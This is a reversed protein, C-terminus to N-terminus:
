DQHRHPPKDEEDDVGVETKVEHQSEAATETEVAKLKEIEAESILVPSSDESQSELDLTPVEEIEVEGALVPPEEFHAETEIAHGEEIEADAALVPSKEVRAETGMAPGEEVDARSAVEPHDEAAARAAMAPPEHADVSAALVPLVETPEAETESDPVDEEPPVTSERRAAEDQLPVTEDARQGTKGTGGPRFDRQKEAGSGEMTAAALDGSALMVAVRAMLEDDSIVSMAFSQNQDLLWLRLDHMLGSDTIVGRLFYFASAQDYFTLATPKGSGAGQCDDLQWCLLYEDRGVRLPLTSLM